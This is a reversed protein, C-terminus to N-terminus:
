ALGLASKVMQKGYYRANAKLAGQLAHFSQRQQRTTRYTPESAVKGNKGVINICAEQSHTVWQWNSQLLEVDLGAEKVAQFLSQESFFNLHTVPERLFEWELWAGLPVEIYLLGDPALHQKLDRILGM